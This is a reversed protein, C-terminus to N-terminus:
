IGSSGSSLSSSASASRSASLMAISSDIASSAGSSTWSSLLALAAIWSAEALAEASMRSRSSSGAWMTVELHSTSIFRGLLIVSSPSRSIRFSRSRDRFRCIFVSLDCTARMFFAILRDESSFLACETTALCHVMTSSGFGRRNRGCAVGESSSPSNAGNARRSFVHTGPASVPPVQAHISWCSGIAYWTMGSTKAAWTPLKM